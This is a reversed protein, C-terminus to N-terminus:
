ISNLKQFSVSDKKVYLGSKLRDINALKGEKNYYIKVSLGTIKCNEHLSKLLIQFFLFVAEGASFSNISQYQHNLKKYDINKIQEFMISSM